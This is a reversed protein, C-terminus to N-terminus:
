VITSWSISCLTRFTSCMFNQNPCRPNQSNANTHASPRGNAKARLCSSSLSNKLQWLVCSAGFIVLFTICIRTTWTQDETRQTSTSIKRITRPHKVVTNRELDVQGDVSNALLLEVSNNNTVVMRTSWVVKHSGIINEEKHKPFDKDLCVTSTFHDPVPSWKIGLTKVTYDNSNIIM